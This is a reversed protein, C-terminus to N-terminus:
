EPSPFSIDGGVIMNDALTSLHTRAGDLYIALREADSRRDQAADFLTDHLEATMAAGGAANAAAYRSLRNYFQQALKRVKPGVGMDGTGMERFTVDLEDIFREAVLRELDGSQAQKLRDLVLFLHLTIMDFRGATTDPVHAQEYFWVQRAQAVSAQFLRDAARKETKNGFIDTFIPM